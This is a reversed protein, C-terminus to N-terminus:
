FKDDEPLYRWQGAPVQGLSIRAIRLRKIALVQLGQAECQTRIYEVPTQTVAFRLVNDSQWSVRSKGTTSAAKNLNMLGQASLEGSVEVRYEYELKHADDQFKRVIGKVQTFVMLGASLPDLPALTTLQQFHRPLCTIGDNCHTDAHLLQAAEQPHVGAPKHLLLTAPRPPALTADHHLHVIDTPSIKCQPMTIIDNGVSVSGNEIYKIADGRSCNILAALTKDLRQLTPM